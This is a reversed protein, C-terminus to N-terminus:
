NLPASGGLEELLPKLFEAYAQWRGIADRYIPQRVQSNSFTRVARETSHFALCAEDWELGCHAVIRRAQGELDAVVEEYQVELMVGAPLVRRWHAMQAEYARYYRALERLDYAYQHGSAFLRSFCSLCVDIPDRRTHIIRANPLALHILGVFNFNGPMKDTIRQATADFARVRGLYDAGLRHFQEAALTQVGDPFHAPAGSRDTLQAVCGGFDRLEGAGFVAPHSALIQEVLTSGSRPMGVIFVPVQTPHGDGGARMLEDTFVARIRAMSQLTEAENYVIRRRKLTNGERLHHFSREREGLDAYGKGLAFHLRIREDEALAPMDRALQEMAALHPDGASFQKLASLYYYHSVARPAREIASALVERAAELRGLEGLMNGVNNYAAILDPKLAIARNFSTLAEDFRKLDRLANGRNNHAGVHGPRLVIARDYSALAQQLQRLDCLVNARNYHADAHDPKLAIARDYSALAEAFRNLDRLAGGRNNHTQADDPGLAIARDYSGLAEAPRGLAAEVLGRKYWGSATQPNHRRAVPLLRAGEHHRRQRCQILILLCLTDFQDREVALIAHCAREAAPLDGDEYLRSALRLQEPLSANTM